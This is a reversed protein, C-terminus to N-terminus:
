KVTSNNIPDIKILHVRVVASPRGVAPSEMQKEWMWDATM